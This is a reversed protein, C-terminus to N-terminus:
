KWYVETNKRTVRQEGTNSAFINSFKEACSRWSPLAPAAASRIRHTVSLTTDDIADVDSRRPEESLRGNRQNGGSLV